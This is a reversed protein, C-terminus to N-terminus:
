IELGLARVLALSREGLTEFFPIAIADPVFGLSWAILPVLVVLLMVTLATDLALRLMQLPWLTLKIFFLGVSPLKQWFPRGADYTLMSSRQPAEFYAPVHNVVQVPM